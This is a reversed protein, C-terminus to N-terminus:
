SNFTSTVRAYDDPTDVDVVVGPDDVEVDEVRSGLGRVVTKAGQEPPAMRLSDFMERGFLVPHGHRGKFTPRVVPAHTRQFTTVLTEITSARVLPHDILAMLVADPERSAARDLGAVLSSLQGRDHEPNFVIETHVADVGEWAQRIEADHLGTVIVIDSVGGAHLTRVTRTLFTDEGLPLLAKPQAMRSSRGGTLLVGVIRM